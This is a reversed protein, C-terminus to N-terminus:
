KLYDLIARFAAPSADFEDTSSDELAVPKTDGAVARRLSFFATRTFVAYDDFVVGLMDMYELLAALNKDRFDFSKAGPAYETLAYHRADSRAGGKIAKRIDNTGDLEISHVIKGHEDSFACIKEATPDDAFLIYSALALGRESNAARDARLLAQRLAPMSVSIMTAARRTMGPITSLERETATFVGHLSGFRQLLELALADNEHEYLAAIARELMALDGHKKKDFVLDNYEKM